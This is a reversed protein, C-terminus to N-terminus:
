LRSRWAALTREVGLRILRQAAADTRWIHALLLLVGVVVIGLRWELPGVFTSLLSLGAVISVAATNSTLCSLLTPSKRTQWIAAAMLTVGGAVLGLVTSEATRIWTVLVMAGVVSIVPVVTYALVYSRERNLPFHVGSFVSDALVVFSYFLLVSRFIPVAGIFETGGVLRVMEPSLVVGPVLLLQVAWAVRKFNSTFQSLLSDMGLLAYLRTMRPLTVLLVSSILTGFYGGAQVGFKLWGVAATSLFLGGVLIPVQVSFTRLLKVLHVALSTRLVSRFLGAAENRSPWILSRGTANWVAKASVVTYVVGWIVQGIFYGYLGLRLTTLIMVVTIGLENLTRLSFYTRFRQSGTLLYGLIDGPSNVLLFLAYLWILTQLKPVHYTAAAFPAAVLTLVALLPLLLAFRVGLVVIAVAGLQERESVQAAEKAAGVGLGLHQLVNFVNGVAVTLGLLGYNDPGLLRVVVMTRVISLLMVLGQTGGAALQLIETKNAIDSAKPWFRRFLSLSM